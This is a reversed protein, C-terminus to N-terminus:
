EFLPLSRMYTPWLPARVGTAFPPPHPLRQFAGASAVPSDGETTSHELLVQEARRLGGPGLSM